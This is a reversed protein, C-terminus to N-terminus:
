NGGQNSSKFDRKKLREINKLMEQLRHKAKQCDEAEINMIATCLGQTFMSLLNCLDYKTM